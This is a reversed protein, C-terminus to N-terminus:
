SKAAPAGVIGTSPAARPRPGAGGSSGGDAAATAAAAAALTSGAPGGEVAVEAAATSAATSASVTRSSTALMPCPCPLTSPTGDETANTPVHLGAALHPTRPQEATATSSAAVTVAESPSESPARGAGDNSPVRHDTTMSMPRVVKVNMGVRQAESPIRRSIGSATSNRGLPSRATTLAGVKRPVQTCGGPTGVSTSNKGNRSIKKGLGSSSGMVGAKMSPSHSIASFPLSTWNKTSVLPKLRPSM